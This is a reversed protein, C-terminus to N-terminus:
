GKLPSADTAEEEKVPPVRCSIWIGHKEPNVRFWELKEGKLIGLRIRDHSLTKLLLLKLGYLPGNTFLVIHPPKEWCVVSGSYKGSFFQGSKMLELSGIIDSALGFNRQADCIVMRPGFIGSYRRAALHLVDEFKSPTFVLVDDEYKISLYQALKTKGTNGIEDCVIHM